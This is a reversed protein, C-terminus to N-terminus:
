SGRAKFGAEIAGHVGAATGEHQKLSSRLERNQRAYRDREDTARDRESALWAVGEAPTAARKKETDWPILERTTYSKEGYYWPVDADPKEKQPVGAALLANKTDNLLAKGQQGQQTLPHVLMDLYDNQEKLEEKVKATRALEGLASGSTRSRKAAPEAPVVLDVVNNNEDYVPTEVQRTLEAVRQELELIRAQAKVLQDRNEVDEPAEAPSPPERTTTLSPQTPKNPAPTPPM